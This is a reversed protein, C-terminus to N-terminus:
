EKAPSFLRLPKYGIGGGTFFRSFFEYYELRLTQIGVILGEFGVVAVTGLAVVLWYLIGHSDGAIGALIFIVASLGGHAVAFAGMRVYSLTNSFFSILTELLEFATQILQTSLSGDEEAPKRGSILNFVLEGFVIAVVAVGCSFAFVMGNLPIVGPAFATAALGLLSWYLVVGAIGKHSYVLPGWDRAIWADILYLLFGVNLIVTGVAVAAMLIDIIRELPHFLIAPLLDEMGFVSGYLFGFVTASLGCIAILSGMSAMGRLFPIKRSLLLGGVLALLLGHGVDGFMIGFILPFTLALLPTPDVEDYRPYGFNTVLQEFPRLITPNELATPVGEAERRRDPATSEILIKDSLRHLEQTLGEVEASPVWGAIRYTYRGKGYRGITDAVRKSVRVRWLLTRLQRARTDHLKQIETEHEAIHQRTREMGTRISSIIEDSTGRYEEPLKLVNLYASRAARELVIADRRAGVLLVVVQHDIARLRLLVFPIRELSTRLRKVNDEPMTGLLAVIYRLDRLSSIDIDLHVLPELQHLYGQLQELKKQEKEMSRTLDQIEHELHDVTLSVKEADVVPFPLEKVDLDFPPPGPEIDLTQMLSRIRRELGAYADSRERWQNDVISGAELSLHSADIQHFVGKKALLETVALVDSDVNVVEIGTMPQPLFM